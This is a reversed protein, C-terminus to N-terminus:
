GNSGLSRLERALWAPMYHTSTGALETLEAKDLRQRLQRAVVHAREPGAGALARLAKGTPQDAFRLKWAPAHKLELVQKGLLLRRSKGSTLYMQRMPVQTTLGLANAAAAENPVLVEGEQRAIAEVVRSPEPPRAGFRTVVPLLYVGRRGRILQGSRCLRSLSQDIAARNGLHLLNRAMLPTGEPLGAAHGLIKQSLSTMGSNM